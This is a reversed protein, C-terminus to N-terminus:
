VGPVPHSDSSRSWDRAAVESRIGLPSHSPHPLLSGAGGLRNQHEATLQPVVLFRRRNTHPIRFFECASSLAVAPLADIALNCIDATFCTMAILSFSAVRASPVCAPETGTGAPIPPVLESNM